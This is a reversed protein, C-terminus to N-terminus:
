QLVVCVYQSGDLLVFSIERVERVEVPNPPVEEDPDEPEPAEEAGSVMQLSRLAGLVPLGERPLEEPPLPSLLEFGPVEGGLFTGPEAAAAHEEGTGSGAGAAQGPTLIQGRRGIGGLRVRANGHFGQTLGRLGRVRRVEGGGECIIRLHCALNAHTSSLQALATWTTVPTRTRLTLSQLSQPLALM